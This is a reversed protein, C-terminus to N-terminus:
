TPTGPGAMVRVILVVDGVAGSLHSPVDGCPCERVAVIRGQADGQAAVLALVLHGPPGGKLPPGLATVAVLAIATAALVGLALGDARM